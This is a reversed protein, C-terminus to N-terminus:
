HYDVLEVQSPGPADDPWVFCLRWQQNVRISFQGKRDGRLVELRNSPLARLDELSTAAELVELRRGAQEALARFARVDEGTAFAATQKDRYGLIMTLNYPGTRRVDLTNNIQPNKATHYKSM